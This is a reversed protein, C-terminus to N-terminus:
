CFLCYFHFILWRAIQSQWGSLWFSPISGHWAINDTLYFPSFTVQSMSLKVLLCCRCFCLLWDPYLTLSVSHHCILKCWAKIESSVAGVAFCFSVSVDRFLTPSISHHCLLKRCAKLKVLNAGIEGCVAGVAFCVSVSLLLQCPLPHSAHVHVHQRAAALLSSRVDFSSYTM